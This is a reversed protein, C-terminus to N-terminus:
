TLLVEASIRDFGGGAVSAVRARAGAVLVPYRAELRRRDGRIGAGKPEGARTRRRLGPRDPLSDNPGCIFATCIADLDIQV